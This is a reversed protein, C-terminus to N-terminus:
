ASPRPASRPLGAPQGSVRRHWALLQEVELADYRARGPTGYRTIRGESAWRRLTSAPLDYHSAAEATTLLCRRM